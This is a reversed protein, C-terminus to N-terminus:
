EFLSNLNDIYKKEKADLLNHANLLNRNYEDDIKKYAEQIEPHKRRYEERNM